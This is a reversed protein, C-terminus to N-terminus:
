RRYRCRRYCQCFQRRVGHRQCQHELCRFQGPLVRSFNGSTARRRPYSHITGAATVSVTSQAGVPVTAALNIAQIASSGSNIVAGAEM